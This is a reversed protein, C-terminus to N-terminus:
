KVEEKLALGETGAYFMVVEAPEDGRNEGYHVTGIMEVLADGAKLRPMMERPIQVADRMRPIVLLLKDMDLRKFVNLPYDCPYLAIQCLHLSPPCLPTPATSVYLAPDYNATDDGSLEPPDGRGLQM